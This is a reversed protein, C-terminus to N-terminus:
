FNLIVDKQDDIIAGTLYEMENPLNIWIESEEDIKGEAAKEFIMKALELAKLGDTNNM